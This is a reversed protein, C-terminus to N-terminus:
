KYIYNTTDSTEASQSNPCIWLLFFTTVQTGVSLSLPSVCLLSQVNEAAAIRQYKRELFDRHSQEGWDKQGKKWRPGEASDWQHRRLWLNQDVQVNTQMQKSDRGQEM